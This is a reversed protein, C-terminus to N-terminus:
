ESVLPKNEMEIQYIQYGTGVVGLADISFGVAGIGQWGRIFDSRVHRFLRWSKERALLTLKTYNGTTLAIDVVGYIQDAADNSVGLKNAVYHYVDRVTGTTNKMFIIYYGNEYINNAGQIINPMGYKACAAGRSKVCLVGGGVMQTLGSVFGVEALVLAIRGKRREKKIVAYMETETSALMDSQKKLGDMHRDIEAIGYRYSMCYTTIDRKLNEIFVQQEHVFQNTGSRGMSWRMVMLQAYNELEKAKREFDGQYPNHRPM